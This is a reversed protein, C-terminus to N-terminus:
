LELVLHRGLNRVNSVTHERSITDVRLRGNEADGTGVSFVCQYGECNIPVDSRQLADSLVKLESEEEHVYVRDLTVADDGQWITAKHATTWKIDINSAMHQYGGGCPTGMPNADSM